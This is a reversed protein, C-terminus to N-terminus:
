NVENEKGGNWDDQWIIRNNAKAIVRKLATFAAICEKRDEYDDILMEYDDPIVAVIEYCRGAAGTIVQTKLQTVKGLNILNGRYDEIWM